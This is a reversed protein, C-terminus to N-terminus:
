LIEGAQRDFRGSMRRDRAKRWFAWGCMSEKHSGECGGCSSRVTTQCHSQRWVYTEDVKVNWGRARMMQVCDDAAVKLVKRLRTEIHLFDGEFAVCRNGQEILVGDAILAGDNGGRTSEDVERALLCTARGLILADDELLGAFVFDPPSTHVDLHVLTHRRM